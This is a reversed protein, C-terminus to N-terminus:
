GISPGCACSWAGVRGGAVAELERESLEAKADPLIFHVTNATNEHVVINIDPRVKIGWEKGITGKPDKLLAERFQASTAVKKQIQTKLDKHVQSRM